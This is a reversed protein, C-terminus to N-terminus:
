PQIFMIITQLMHAHVLYGSVGGNIFSRPAAIIVGLAPPPAVPRGPQTRRASLSGAEGQCASIEGANGSILLAAAAAGVEGDGPRRRWRRRSISTRIKGHGGPTM